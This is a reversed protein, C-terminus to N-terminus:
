VCFVCLLLPPLLPIGLKVTPISLINFPISNWLFSTWLISYQYANITSQIPIALNANNHTHHTTNRHQPTWIVAPSPNKWSELQKHSESPQLGVKVPRAKKTTRTWPINHKYKHCIPQMQVEVQVKPRISHVNHETKNTNYATEWEPMSFRSNGIALTLSYIM